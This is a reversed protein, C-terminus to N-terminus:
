VIRLATRQNGDTDFNNPHLWQQMAHRVKPWDQDVLAYWATDRNRGKYVAAQSFTGEYSFGLRLAAKRSPENLSDCKWEYRRYGLDFVYQMLLFQAETAVATRQMAPAFAVFGVDISGHHPNHRLLAMTGVARHTKHDIVAYHLPDMSQSADTAWQVYSVANDFPGVPLYTWDRGDPAQSYASFLETAHRTTDLRELTCYSGTLQHATPIAPASWNPVASGIPQGYENTRPVSHGRRESCGM